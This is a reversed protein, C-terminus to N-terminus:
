GSNAPPLHAALAAEFEPDHRDARRRKYISGDVFNEDARLAEVTRAVEAPEAVLGVGLGYHCYALGRVAGPEHTDLVAWGQEEDWELDVYVTNEFRGGWFQSSDLGIRMARKSESQPIALDGEVEIALAQLERIVAEGYGRHDTRGQGAM